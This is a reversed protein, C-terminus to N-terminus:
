IIYASLVEPGIQSPQGSQANRRNGLFRSVTILGQFMLYETFSVVRLSPYM